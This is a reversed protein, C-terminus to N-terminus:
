LSFHKYSNYFSLTVSPPIFQDSYGDYLCAAHSIIGQKILDPVEGQEFGAIYKVNLKYVRITRDTVIFKSGSILTYQDKNLVFDDNCICEVISVIPGYPIFFSKVCRGRSYYAHIERTCKIISVKIYREAAATATKILGLIMDDDDEHNIRLIQRVAKVTVPLDEGAELLRPYLNSM